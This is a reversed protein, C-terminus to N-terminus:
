FVQLGADATTEAVLVGLATALVADIAVASGARAIRYSDGINKRIAHPIQQTLLADGAHEFERRAIKAYLMSAANIADAHTGIRVPMGRRKLETALDGLAYRDMAFAQPTHRNLAVAAAVFRELTPAVLSAVLESHIRGADDKGTAVISGFAWDPTREFTFVPRVGQPWDAGAPRTQAAWKTPEIFPSAVGSLFRNGLYRLVDAPPLSRADAIAVEADRRGSALSPNAHKLWTLFEADGEPIADNPAEWVFAGFRNGNPDAAIAEAALKYLRLLMTSSADGATTVGVVLANPRAGTGNVLDAWVEARLLHLEDVLGLDLPIGQLAASKSPKLRYEGSGANSRIGRTGSVRFRTALSGNRTIAELTRKYILNAQEVTSAIGVVVADVSRLLGILGLIAAVETKGNQRGLSVLVQRYRLQGARPHGAPFQELLARLLATQWGEPEYGFAVRWVVAVVRAYRDYLSPFSAALSRTFRSPPWAAVPGTM